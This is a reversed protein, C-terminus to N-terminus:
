AMDNAIRRSIDVNDQMATVLSDMKEVQQQLISIQQKGDESMQNKLDMIAQSFNGSGTMASQVAAAVSSALDQGGAASASTSAASQADKQAAITGAFMKEAGRIDVPITRGESLPIVAEPGAEGAISLGDTIGGKAKPKVTKVFEMIASQLQSLVGVLQQAVESVAGGTEERKTKLNQLQKETMGALRMGTLATTGGEEVTQVLGKNGTVASGRKVFSSIAPTVENQLTRALVAMKDSALSTQKTLVDQTQILDQATDFASKGGNLKQQESKLGLATARNAADAYDGMNGTAMNIRGMIKQTERGQEAIVKGNDMMYQETERAAANAKVNNNKINDVGSRLATDLAPMQAMMAAKVPDVVEGLTLLQGIEKEYGPFRRVLNNFKEQMEEGGEALEAQVAAQEGAAKVRAQQQKIDEGTISSMIKMNGLYEATGKAVQEATKGELKGTMQLQAMYDITGQAQQDTTIGLNLLSTRYPSMANSAVAFKKAGLEVTGGFNSLTAANQAVMSSFQKLDLASIAAFNRMETMGGSFLAGANTVTKFGEATKVTEVQLLGVGDKALKMFQSQVGALVSVTAAGGALLKSQWSPIMALATAASAAGTSLKEMASIQDTMAQNQLSFAFQLAGVNEQVGKAATFFQNKLYDLAAGIGAKTLDAAIEGVGRRLVEGAMKQQEAYIAQGANSRKAAADLDDFSSQLNRLSQGAQAYGVRGRDLESRLQAMGRGVSKLNGTYQSSFSSIASGAASASGTVRGLAQALQAAANQVASLDIPDAM